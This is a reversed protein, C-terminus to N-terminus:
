VVIKRTKRSTQIDNNSVYGVGKGPRLVLQVIYFKKFERERQFQLGVDSGSEGDGDYESGSSEDDFSMTQDDRKFSSGFSDNNELPSSLQLILAFLYCISEYQITTRRMEYMLGLQFPPWTAPRLQRM